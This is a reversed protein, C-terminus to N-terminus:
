LETYSRIAKRYEVLRDAAENKAERMKSEAALLDQVPIIGAKYDSEAIDFLRSAIDDAEVAVQWQDYAVTLDLWLKSVQLHLQRDLYEQDNRAKEVKTELRQAKRATKGWDSIPVKLTALAIANMRGKDMLNSYGYTVGVSIQPLAEGIAMRKELKGAKVQLALLASEEMGSVVEDEDRYYDSPSKVSDASCQLVIDDIYPKDYSSAAEFLSFPQDVTNLLNVKQLRIGSTVQKKGAKLESQKLEIQLIDTDAALGAGIAESVTIHLSDLINELRDLTSLKEELAAIQWWIDEVDTRTKRIQIGNQLTAAEIGLRALANGTVIRGGAYVPQLATLSAAYGQKLTTYSTNIGYMSGYSEVTNQLNNAFDNNGLVDRVDIDILPNLSYYGFMSASVRPFYEALAEQKQLRAAKVDLASNLVDANRELAMKRCDELTLVLTQASVPLALCAFASLMTAAAM